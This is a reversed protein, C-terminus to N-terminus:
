STGVSQSRGTVCCDKKGKVKGKEPVDIKSDDIASNCATLTPRKGLINNVTYIVCSSACWQMGRLWLLSEELTTAAM